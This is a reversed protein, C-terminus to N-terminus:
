DHKIEVPKLEVEIYEIDEILDDWDVEAADIPDENDDMFSSVFLYGGVMDYWYGPMHEKAVKKGAFLADIAEGVKM